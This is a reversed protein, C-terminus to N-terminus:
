SPRKPEASNCATAQEFLLPKTGGAGQQADTKDPKGEGGGGGGYEDKSAPEAGKWTALLM